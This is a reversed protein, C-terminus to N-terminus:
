DMISPIARLTASSIRCLRHIVIASVLSFFELEEPDEDYQKEEEGSNKGGDFVERDIVDVERERQLVEVWSNVLGLWGSVWQEHHEAPEHISEDAVDM